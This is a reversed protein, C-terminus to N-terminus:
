FQVWCRACESQCDGECDFDFGLVRPTDKVTNILLQGKINPYTQQIYEVNSNMRALSLRLVEPFDKILSGIEKENLGINEKLFSISAEVKEESPAENKVDGRWFKQSGWGFAREIVKDAKSELKSDLSGLVSRVRDWEALESASLVDSPKVKKPKVKKSAMMHTVHRTPSTRSCRSESRSLRSAKFSTTWTPTVFCGRADNKYNDMNALVM